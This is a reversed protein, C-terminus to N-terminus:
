KDAASENGCYCAKLISVVKSMAYEREVKRVASASASERAQPSDLSDIAECLGAVDGVPVTKGAGGSMMDSNAGVDTAIAPLGRAMAEMLAISFGETHSPFLFVDAKDMEEIVRAHDIQGVLEVNEPFDMGKAYSGVAGVLKFKIESMQKAVAVIEDLGKAKVVRGVFLVNEIKENIKKPETAIYKEDIFNPVKISEVGFKEKLYERSSDCLVMNIDSIAILKSLYKFGRKTKIQDPINCNCHLIIKVDPQKKRIKKATMYDRVIGFKGCSTNIHAVDYKEKELLAKLDRFIRRTRFIEDFLNRKASGNELRKGTMAINLVSPEIGASECASLFMDTWVAIGGNANKQLPSVLLVKM